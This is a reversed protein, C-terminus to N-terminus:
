NSMYVPDSHGPGVAVTLLAAQSDTCLVVPGTALDDALERVEELAAWIATLEARTNSCLSGAAVRVEGRVQHHDPGRRRRSLRRGGGLRRELDM